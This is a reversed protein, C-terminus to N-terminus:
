LTHFDVKMYAHSNSIFLQHPFINTLSKNIKLNELFKNFSYNTPEISYIKSSSYIKALNLSHIGMNAGIDIIDLNNDNLLRKAIKTISKEFGGFLFISLEIGENLDVAWKLGNRSIVMNARRLVFIIMKSLIRALFVKQITKM